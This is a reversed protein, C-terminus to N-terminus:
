VQSIKLPADHGEITPNLDGDIARDDHRQHLREAPVHRGDEVALPRKQRRDQPGDFGTKIPESPYVLLPLLVPEGVGDGHQEKMDRAKQEEVAQQAQLAEQREIRLAHRRHWLIEAEVGRDAEDGVGVPLVVTALAREGIEHLHEAERM